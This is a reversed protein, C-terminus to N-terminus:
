KHYQLLAEGKLDGIILHLAVGQIMIVLTSGSFSAARFM